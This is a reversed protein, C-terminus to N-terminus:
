AGIRIRSAKAIDELTTRLTTSAAKEGEIIILPKESEDKKILVLTVGEDNIDAHYVNKHTKQIRYHDRVLPEELAEAISKYTEERGEFYWKSNIIERKM